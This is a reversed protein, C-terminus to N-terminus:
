KKINVPMSDYISKLKLSNLDNDTISPSIDGIKGSVTLYCFVKNEFVFVASKHQNSMKDTALNWKKNGDHTLNIKLKKVKLVSVNENILQVSKIDSISLIPTKEITYTEHSDLDEFTIGSQKDNTIFYWGTKVKENEIQFSSCIFFIVLISLYKVKM